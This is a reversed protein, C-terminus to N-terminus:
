LSGLRIAVKRSYMKQEAIIHEILNGIRIKGTECNVYKGLIVINNLHYRFKAALRSWCHM